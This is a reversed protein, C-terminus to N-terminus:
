GSQRPFTRATANTQVFPELARLSGCAQEAAAKCNGRCTSVVGCEACADPDIRCFSRAAESKVLANFRTELINGLITPSHNCMRVNGIPDFTYYARDTGAACFGFSLREYGSVDILCPPIPVSVSIPLGFAEVALDAVKLAESVHEPSPLLEDLHSLGTGGPNVRNLMVADVSLAFSIRLMDHLHDWNRETIVFVSVSRGGAAKVGALAETVRDFSESQTLYNHTERDGSLLPIEFLGVGADILERIMADTLLSGNTLLNVRVGHSRVREILQLIDPRLLPEGGTFSFVKCRTQRIIRDILKLTDDTDFQGDPYPQPSKWVNYCHLCNHNCAQIAEFIISDM